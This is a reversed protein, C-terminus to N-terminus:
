NYPHMMYIYLIYVILGFSQGFSLSSALARLFTRLLLKPTKVSELTVNLAHLAHCVEM